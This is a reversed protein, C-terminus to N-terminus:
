SWQERLEGIMRTCPPLTMARRVRSAATTVSAMILTNVSAAPMVTARMSGGRSAARLTGVTAGFGTLWAPGTSAGPVPVPSRGVPPPSCDARATGSDAVASPGWTDATTVSGAVPLTRQDCFGSWGEVGAEVVLSTVEAAASAASPGSAVNVVLTTRPAM